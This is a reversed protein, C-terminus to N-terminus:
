EALPQKAPLGHRYSEGPAPPRALPRAVVLHEAVLYARDRAALRTEGSDLLAGPECAAICLGCLICAGYDLRWLYSDPGRTDLTIAGTPCVRACAGSAVCRDAALVPAGRGRESSDGSTGDPAQTAGAERGVAKRALRLLRPM